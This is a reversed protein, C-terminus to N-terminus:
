SIAVNVWVSQNRARCFVGLTCFLDGMLDHLSIPDPPLDSEMYSAWRRFYGPRIASSFNAFNGALDHQPAWTKRHRRNLFDEM